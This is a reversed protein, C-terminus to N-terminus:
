CFSTNPLKDGRVNINSFSKWVLESLKLIFSTFISKCLAVIAALSGKKKIGGYKKEGYAILLKRTTLCSANPSSTGPMCLFIMSM